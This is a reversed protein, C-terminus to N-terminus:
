GRAGAAIGELARACAVWSQITTGWIQPGRGWATYHRIIPYNTFHFPYPLFIMTAYNSTIYGSIDMPVSSFEWCLSSKYVRSSDYVYACCSHRSSSWSCAAAPEWVSLHAFMPVRCALPTQPKACSMSAVRPWTGVCVSMRWSGPLDPVIPRALLAFSLFTSHHKSPFLSRATEEKDNRLLWQFCFHYVSCRRSTLYFTCNTERWSTM